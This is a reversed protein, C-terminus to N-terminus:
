VYSSCALIEGKCIKNDDNGPNSWAASDSFFFLYSVFETKSNEFYLHTVGSDTDNGAFLCTSLSM